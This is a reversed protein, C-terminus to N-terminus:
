GQVKEMVAAEIIEKAQEGGAMRILQTLNNKMMVSEQMAGIFVSMKMSELVWAKRVEEFKSMRTIRLLKKKTEGARKFADEIQFALTNIRGMADNRAKALSNISQEYEQMVIVYDGSELIMKDIKKLYRENEQQAGDVVGLNTCVTLHEQVAKVIPKQDGGFQIYDALIRNLEKEKEQAIAEKEAFQKSLFEIRELYYERPIKADGDYGYLPSLMLSTSTCSSRSEQASQWVLGSRSGMGKTFM